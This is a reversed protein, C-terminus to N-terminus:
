THGRGEKNGCSHVDRVCAYVQVHAAEVEDQAVSADYLQASLEPVCISSTTGTPATDTDFPREAFLSWPM